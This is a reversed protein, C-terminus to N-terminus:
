PVYVNYKTKFYDYYRTSEDLASSVDTEILPIVQEDPTIFAEVDGLYVYVLATGKHQNLQETYRSFWDAGFMLFHRMGNEDKTVQIIAVLEEGNYALYDRWNVAISNGDDGTRIHSYGKEKIEIQSIDIGCANLTNIVGNKVSNLYLAAESDSIAYESGTITITDTTNIKGNLGGAHSSNQDNFLTKLTVSIFIVLIFSAAIASWKYLAKKIRQKKEIPAAMEIMKSDIKGLELYFEKSTM